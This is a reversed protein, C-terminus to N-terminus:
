VKYRHSLFEAFEFDRPEDIDVSFEGPMMYARSVKGFLDGQMILDARTLYIASNRKFAPAQTNRSGSEKDEDIGDIFPLILDDEIKKIKALSFNTLKYMSMVSDAGTIVAKEICADIDEPHRFPSTPQLIMVYDFEEKKNEKLWTLAHQIVPISKAGDNALEEPRMFPVPAGYKKSIEAIEADDTSVLFYDLYKSGAAAQITWAILPKGGLDKINKRPIGKSGGRATIVALFRKNQYM